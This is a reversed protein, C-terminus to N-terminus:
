TPNSVWKIAANAQSMKLDELKAVNFQQCAEEETRGIQHLRTRILKLPAEMIPKDGDNQAPSGGTDAAPAANPKPESPAASKSVPHEVGSSQDAIAEPVPSWTGAIADNVTLGQSGVEAADNLAIAQALEPSAPLYKLVQLLVVKRAYMEINSYSYHKTGQKNYRDRHKIIREMTWVEIVPFDSGKQRGIAYTHTIKNPDCEGMPKHKVFPSDGLQYDFEDGQFM